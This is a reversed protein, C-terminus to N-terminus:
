GCVQATAPSVEFDLLLDWAEKPRRIMCIESPTFLTLDLNFYEARVTGDSMLALAVRRGPHQIVRVEHKLQEPLPIM